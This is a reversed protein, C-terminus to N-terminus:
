RLRLSSTPQAGVSRLDVACVKLRAHIIFVGKERAVALLRNVTPAMEAVRSAAAKCTHDDWMDCIIVATEAPRWRVIRHEEQFEDTGNGQQTRSRMELVLNQSNQINAM